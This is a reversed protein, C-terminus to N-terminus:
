LGFPDEPPVNASGRPAPPPANTTAPLAANTTASAPAEYPNTSSTRETSGEDRPPV